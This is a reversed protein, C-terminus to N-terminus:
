PSGVATEEPSANGPLLSGLPFTIHTYLLSVLIDVGVMMIRGVLIGLEHEGKRTRGDCFADCPLIEPDLRPIMSGSTDFFIM